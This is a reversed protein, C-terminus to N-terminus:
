TAEGLTKNLFDWIPMEMSTTCWFKYATKEDPSLVSDVIINIWDKDYKTKDCLAIIPYNDKYDERFLIRQNGRSFSINYFLAILREKHRQDYPAMAHTKFYDLIDEM